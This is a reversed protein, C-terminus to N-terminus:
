KHWKGDVRKPEIPRIKVTSDCADGRLDRSRLAVGRKYLSLTPTDYFFIRRQEGNERNLGLKRLAIAEDRDIVTVKVEIAETGSTAKAAHGARDVKSREMTQSRWAGLMAPQAVSNGRGSRPGRPM